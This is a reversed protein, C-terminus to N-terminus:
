GKLEKVGSFLLEGSNRVVLMTPSSRGLIGNM